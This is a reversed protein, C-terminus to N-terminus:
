GPAVVLVRGDPRGILVHEAGAVGAPGEDAAALDAEVPLGADPDPADLGVDAALREPGAVVHREQEGRREVRQVGLRVELARNTATEAEVETREQTLRGQRIHAQLLM